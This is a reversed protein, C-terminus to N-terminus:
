GAALVHRAQRLLAEAEARRATPGPVPRAETDIV